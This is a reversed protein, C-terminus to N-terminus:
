PTLMTLYAPALGLLYSSERPRCAPTLVCYWSAACPNSFTRSYQLQFFPPNLLYSNDGGRQQKDHMKECRRECWENGDAYIQRSIRLRSGWQGGKGMQQM